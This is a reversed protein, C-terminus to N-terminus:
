EREAAAALKAAVSESLADNQARLAKLRRDVEEADTQSLTDTADAVVDAVRRVANSAEAILALIQDVSM